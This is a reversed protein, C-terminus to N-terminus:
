VTTGHIRKELNKLHTCFASLKILKLAHSELKDIGAMHELNKLKAKAAKTTNELEGTKVLETLYDEITTVDEVMDQEDWTLPTEMYDAVFPRKHENRYETFPPEVDTKMVQGRDVKVKPDIVPATDEPVATRVTLDTM